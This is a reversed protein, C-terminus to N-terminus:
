KITQGRGMLAGIVGGVIAYMVVGVLVDVITATLDLAGRRGGYLDAVPLELIRLPRLAPCALAELFRGLHRQEEAEWSLGERVYLPLEINSALVEKDGSASCASARPRRPPPLTEARGLAM